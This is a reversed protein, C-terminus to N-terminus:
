MAKRIQFEQFDHCGARGLKTGKNRFGLKIHSIRTLGMMATNMGPRYGPAKKTPFTQAYPIGLSSDTGNKEKWGTAQGEHKVQRKRM